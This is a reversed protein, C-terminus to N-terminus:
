RSPCSRPQRHVLTPPAPGGNRGRRDVVVDLCTESVTGGADNLTVGRVVARLFGNSGTTAHRKLVGCSVSDLVGGPRRLNLHRCLEDVTRFPRSSGCGPSYDERSIRHPARDIPSCSRRAIVAEAMPETMFIPSTGGPNVQLGRLAEYPATNVNIRHDRNKTRYNSYVRRIERLSAPGIGSVGLLGGLTMLQDPHERVFELVRKAREPGFSRETVGGGELSDVQLSPEAPPDRLNIKGGEDELRLVRFFGITREGPRTELSPVYVPEDYSVGPLLHGGWGWPEGFHDVGATDPSSPDMRVRSLWAEVGAEAVTSSRGSRTLADGLTVHVSTTLAYTGVGVGLLAILVLVAALAFGTEDHPNVHFTRGRPISGGPALDRQTSTM